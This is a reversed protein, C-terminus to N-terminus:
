RAQSRHAEAAAAYARAFSDRHADDAPNDWLVRGRSLVVARTSLAFGRAQDHTVLISTVGLIM